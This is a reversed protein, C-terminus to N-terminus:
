KVVVKSTSVLTEDDMLYYFYIGSNLNNRKIVIKNDSFLEDMVVRGLVDVLKLHPKQLHVGAGMVVTADDVMPNPIITILNDNAMDSIGVTNINFLFPGSTIECGSINTITVSYIGSQSVTYNQNTAGSIPGGNLNWQYTTASTSSLVYMNQTITPQAPLPNVTITVPTSNSCGYIDTGTVTYTTTASPTITPNAILPNDIDTIPLWSYTTAGGATIQTSAGTCITTSGSLSITPGGTVTVTVTAPATCGSVNGVTCTYTTTVVPHALVTASTTTNLGTFPSWSFSTGGTATLATTDGCPITVNSSASVTMNCNGMKAVYYGSGYNGPGGNCSVSISSPNFTIPGGYSTFVSGLAVENNRNSTLCKGSVVVQGGGTATKVWQQTGIVDYKVVFAANSGVVSTGGFVAPGLYNGSFYVGGNHDVAAGYGIDDSSGGGNSKAWLTNGSMDTSAVLIDQGGATTVPVGGFQFNGNFIGTVFIQPYAIAVGYLADNASSGGSKAMIFNGTPGLRAIFYDRQGNGNLVTTGFTIGSQFEGVIVVNGAYDVDIGHGIAAGNGTGQVAYVVNGNPDLKVVLADEVGPSSLTISGFTVSGAFEGTLYTNGLGDSKMAEFTCASSAAFSPTFDWVDAGNNNIKKVRHLGGYSSAYGLLSGPTSSVYGNGYVVYCNGLTDSSICFGSNADPQVADINRCWIPTGAANYKAMFSNYDGQWNSTLQSGVIYLTNNYYGSVFVEGNNNITTGLVENNHAGGLGSQAWQWNQANM